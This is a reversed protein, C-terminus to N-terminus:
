LAQWLLAAAGSAVSLAVIGATPADWRSRKARTTTPSAATAHERVPPAVLGPDVILASVGRDAALERVARETLRYYPQEAGLLSTLRDLSTFVVACREGGRDRFLRLCIGAPLERLPVYLRESDPPEEIM